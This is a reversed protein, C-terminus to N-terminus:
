NYFYYKPKEMMQLLESYYWDNIEHVTQENISTTKLNKKKDLQIDYIEFSPCGLLISAEIEDPSCKRFWLYFKSGQESLPNVIFSSRHTIGTWFVSYHSNAVHLLKTYQLPSTEKFTFLRGLVILRLEVPLQFHRLLVLDLTLERDIM